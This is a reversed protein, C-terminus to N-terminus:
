PFVLTISYVNHQQQFHHTRELREQPPRQEWETSNLIEVELMKLELIQDLSEYLLFIINSILFNLFNLDVGKEHTTTAMTKFIPVSRPDLRFWFRFRYHVVRVPKL